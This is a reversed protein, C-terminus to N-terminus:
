SQDEEEMERHFTPEGMADCEIDAAALIEKALEIIWLRARSEDADLDDVGRGRM